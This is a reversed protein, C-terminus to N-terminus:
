QEREASPLGVFALHPLPLRCKVYAHTPALAHSQLERFPAILFAIATSGSAADWTANAQCLGWRSERERSHTKCPVAFLNLIPTVPEKPECWTDGRPREEVKRLLMTYTSPM